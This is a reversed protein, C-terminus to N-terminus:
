GFETDLIRAAVVNKTQQMSLALAEIYSHVQQQASGVPFASERPFGVPLVGVALASAALSQFFERRTLM